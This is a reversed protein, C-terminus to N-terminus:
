IHVQLMHLPIYAFHKEMTTAEMELVKPTSGWLGVAPLSLHHALAMGCEGLYADLLVAEYGAQIILYIRENKLGGTCSRFKECRKSGLFWLPTGWYPPATSTM